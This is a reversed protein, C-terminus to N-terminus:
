RGKQQLSGDSYELRLDSAAKGSRSGGSNSGTNQRQTNQTTATGTENKGANSGTATIDSKTEEIPADKQIFRPSFSILSFPARKYRLTGQPRARFNREQWHLTNGKVYVISECEDAMSILLAIDSQDSQSITEEKRNSEKNATGSFKFNNERAIIQAIQYRSKNEWTRSKLKVDLIHTRDMIHLTMTPVGDDNFAYDVASIFGDLMTRHNLRYGGKIKFKTSSAFIPDSICELMPDAIVVSAIDSGTAHDEYTVEEVLSHRLASMKRDNVYLAFYPELIHAHNVTM